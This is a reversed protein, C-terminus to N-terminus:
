KKPVYKDLLQEFDYEHISLWRNVEPNCFSIFEVSDDNLRRYLGFKEIEPYKLCLSRTM